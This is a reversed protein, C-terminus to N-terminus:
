RNFIGFDFRFGLCRIIRDYPDRLPFNDSGNGLIDTTEVSADDYGFWKSISFNQKGNNASIQRRLKEIKDPFSLLLKGDTRKVVALMENELGLM